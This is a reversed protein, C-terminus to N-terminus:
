ALKDTRAVVEHILKRGLETWRTSISTGIRGDAMTYTSTQTDTLGKGDYKAYLVWNGSKLKYQLGIDHLLGNLKRASMGLEKAISTIAYTGESILVNDHYDAKPRLDDIVEQQATIKDQQDAALRLAAAYTQPVQPVYEEALKRWSDYVKAQLEYSYSMAMLCSEREPLLLITRTNTVVGDARRIEDTHYFNVVGTGLVKEAKKIFNKHDYKGDGVCLKALEISSMVNENNHKIINFM